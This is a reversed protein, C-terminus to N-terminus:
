AVHCSRWVTQQGGCMFVCSVCVCVCVCVQCEFMTECPLMSMLLRTTRQPLWDGFMTGSIGWYARKAKAPILAQIM